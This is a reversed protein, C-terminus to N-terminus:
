PDMSGDSPRGLTRTETNQTSNHACVAWSEVWPRRIATRPGSVVGADGARGQVPRHHRPSGAATSTARRRRHGAGGDLWCADVRGPYFAVHDRLAAYAPRRARSLDVRRADRLDPRGSWSTSTRRWARSSASRRTAGCRTCGPPTSTARRSTSAPLTAPRWCACRPESDAIVHRRVGRARSPRVARRGPAAPLGLRIGADGPTRAGAGTPEGVSRSFGTLSVASARVDSSPVTHPMLERASSFAARRASRSAAWALCSALPAACSAGTSGRRRRPARRPRRRPAITILWDPVSSLPGPPDASPLAAAASTPPMAWSPM